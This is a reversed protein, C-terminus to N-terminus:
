DHDITSALDSVDNKAETPKLVKHEAAKNYELINAVLKSVSLLRLEILM